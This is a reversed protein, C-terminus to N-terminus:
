IEFCIKGVTNDGEPTEGNQAIKISLMCKVRKTKERKANALAEQLKALEIEKETEENAKEKEEILKDYYEEVQDRQEDLKDMEEEIITMAADHATEYDDKQEELLDKLGDKIKDALENWAETGQKYASQLNKLQAIYEKVSITGRDYADEIKDLKQKQLEENIKRWAETGQQVRGLLNSLGNIYQNITIENYDFQDKLNDFETEWWEKEAKSSSSSSGRSGSGSSGRGSSGSGTYKKQNIQVPKSLLDFYPKYANQVASIKAQVDSSIEKGDLAKNAQDVAQAFGIFSGISGAAKQGAAEAENGLSAVAAQALSSAEELNGAAVAQVDDAMAASLAASASIRKAEAQNYLEGTNAILQGNELSLYGLLDNDILTSLTDASLYGAENYEDVAATLSNYKETIADMESSYNSLIDTAETFVEESITNSDIMDNNVIGFDAMVYLLDELSKGYRGAQTTLYDFIGAARAPSDDNQGIDLIESINLKEGEKGLVKALEDFRGILYSSTSNFEEEMADKFDANEIDDAYGEFINAFYDKVEQDDGSKVTKDLKDKLKEIEDLAKNAQVENGSLIADEYKKAAENIEDAYNSYKDNQGVKVQASQELLAEYSDYTDNKIKKLSESINAQAQKIDKSTLGWEKGYEGIKRSLETYYEYAEDRTRLQGEFEEGLIDIGNDSLGKISVSFLSEKNMFKQADQIEKANETLFNEGKKKGLENLLDIQDQLNGNVLDISAAEEGYKSKIKEQIDLLRKRTDYAEKSSLNQNNLKDRLETVSDINDDMAQKNEVAKKASKTADEINEMFAEHLKNQVAVLATISAIAIGIVGPVSTMTGKLNKGFTKWSFSAGEASIGMQYISKRINNFTEAYQSKKIKNLAVNLAVIAATALGVQIVFKGFDTNVISLLGSGIDVISKLLNSNIMNSAFQQFESKLKQIKGTISNLVKENEETASGASNMAVETAEIATKFNSIIAAANQAQFKGAITETVYAKEAATLNPYVESLDKLLNFTNKIQGNSDYVTLGLKNFLGEMQAQVELSKEGEDNM